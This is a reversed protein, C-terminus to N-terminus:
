VTVDNLGAGGPYKSRCLQQFGSRNRKVRAFIMEGIDNRIDFAFASM